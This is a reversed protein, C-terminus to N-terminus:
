KRKVGRKFIHYTMLILTIWCTSMMIGGIIDSPYHVGVYIRSIMILFAISTTATILLIRGKRSKVYPWTIYVIMAYLSVAMMTHGSPFSFGGADMLRYIEPRTRTFVRKLGENLLITGVISFAFLFAESRKGLGFYLTICVALTISTVGYGSGIWTFSKLLKTLWSVEMGQVFTIISLDFREIAGREIARAIFLFSGGSSILILLAIFLTRTKQLM